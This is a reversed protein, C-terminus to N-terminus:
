KKEVEGAPQKEEFELLWTLYTRAKTLDAIPTDKYRYRSIYKVVQGKLYGRYEEPTFSGEIFDIAQIAGRNYHDVPPKVKPM